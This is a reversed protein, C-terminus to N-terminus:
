EDAETNKKRKRGREAAELGAEILRRVAEAETGIEHTFRYKSVRKWLDDPATILKRTQSETRPPRGMRSNYLRIDHIDIIDKITAHLTECRYTAPLSHLQFSVSTM